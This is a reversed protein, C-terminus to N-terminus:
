PEIIELSIQGSNTKATLEAGGGNITGVWHDEELDGSLTVPFDSRIKGFDTELEFTLPTDEPIELRIEGFDTKISHPGEGLSGTFEITGSNTDLDLDANEAETIEIDGFESHAKISGSIVEIILEGSNTDLDYSDAAVGKLTIDGFDSHADVLGAISLETLKISGSNAEINLQEAEGSEFEIKGFESHLLIDSLAEVNILAIKGSNSRVEISDGNSNELSADGFETHLDIDGNGASIDLATIEGSNSDVKLAGAVNSTTIDGFESQLDAAGATGSLSVDGSSTTVTVSTDAPVTITFDVTDSRISGAFVVKPEKQYRVTIKNGVQTVTINLEDLEAQAKDQTSHWATKHALVIIQDTDGGAVNIDGASSEVVLDTPGDASFQWEEDAEASVLDAHFIRVRVGESKLNDIGVWSILIISGCLLIEAVILIGAILWKRKM